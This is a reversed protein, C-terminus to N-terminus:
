GSKTDVKASHQFFMVIRDAIKDSPKLRDCAARAASLVAPELLDRRLELLDRTFAGTFEPHAQFSIARTGYALAANVCFANAAVVTADAPRVMIQDQHWANMVEQRGDAFDYTTPGVGWGMPFKEVKGGLAQALVQHGFCIGVIPVEAAYAARLFDELQAIWPLKEYASHRSGTLLWGDCERVDKPFIGDLVPYTQFDFGHGALMDQMMDPFDGHKERLTDAARGTQLIGIKM